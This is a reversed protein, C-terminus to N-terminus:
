LLHPLFPIHREFPLSIAVREFTSAEIDIYDLSCLASQGRLTHSTAWSVHSGLMYSEHGLVRPQGAHSDSLGETSQICTITRFCADARFCVDARVDARSNLESANRLYCAIGVLALAQPINQRAGLRILCRDDCPMTGNCGLDGSQVSISCSSPLM